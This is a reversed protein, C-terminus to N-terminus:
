SKNVRNGDRCALIAIDGDAESHGATDICSVWVPASPTRTTTPSPVPSVMSSRGAVVVVFPLLPVLLPLRFPLVAFVGVIPPPLPLVREM